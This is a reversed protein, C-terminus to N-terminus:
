PLTELANLVSKQQKELAEQRVKVREYLGGLKLLYKLYDVAKCAPHEPHDVSGLKQTQQDLLKDLRDGSLSHYLSNRIYTFGDRIENDLQWGLHPKDSPPCYFNCFDRWGNDVIKTVRYYLLPNSYSKDCEGKTLLPYVVKTIPLWFGQSSDEDYPHYLITKLDGSRWEFENSGQEVLCFLALEMAGAVRLYWNMWQGAERFSKETWLFYRNSGQLYPPKRHKQSVDHSVV